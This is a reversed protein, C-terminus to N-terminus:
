FTKLQNKIPLKRIRIGCAAYIANCLAPAVPPYPPEGMGTPPYGNDVIHVDIAKPADKMRLVMYNNFNNENTKGEFITVEQFLSASLGDIIAGETQAKVGDVNLVQGCDVASTFRHVTLIGNHRDVSVEAVHAVYSDFTFYGAIGMGSSNPLKKSWGAKEAALQLVDKMRQTSIVTGEEVDFPFEKNGDRLLNLRFELPDSNNAYALEDTFSEVAFALSNNGPARILSRNINSVALSYEQRFNPTLNAPFHNPFFESIYPEVNPRFAYRSTGAQRHLWSTLQGNDNWTAMLKHYSFPRYADFQIDDERTWFYQVPKKIEKAVKAAEITYDPGLRRGFGGGIRTLHLTIKETPLEFFRSLFNLDAFPVQSTSWIECSDDRLDITCDVTEMPVHAIFPLHYTAELKNSSTNLLKYVDGDNKVESDGKRGVLNECNQHLSETSEKINVGLDWEIKLAKRGKLVAWVSDGVVAVGERCFPREIDGHFAVKFVKQVGPIALAASSDFTKVTAGYVESKEMSAYSMNPIRVDQGFVASGNLIGKIDPNSVSKGILKFDSPKKLEVNQPVELLAAKEALAGYGLSRKDSKNHIFGGSAFCNERPIEWVNAAAMILLERATAGALRMPKWYIRVSNSGAARQDYGGYRMGADAQIVKINKWDVSLEEAVLMPLSTRVGQGIEPVPNAIQVIGNTDISLYANFDHLEGPGLQELPKEKCSLNVGLFLGGTALTSTKIFDRRGIM